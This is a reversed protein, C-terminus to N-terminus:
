EGMAIARLVPYLPDKEAKYGTSHEVFLVYKHESCGKCNVCHQNPDFGCKCLYVSEGAEKLTEYTALIYDCHGFNLGIGPIVSKVINCNPIDNFANEAIPNKTYTWFLTDPCAKVIEQWGELYKTDNNSDSFDGSAHIRCLKVKDAHVQAIIAKVMFETYDRAIITNFANSDIVVSGNYRGSKAYCGPCDCKCTGKVEVEKGNVTATFTGTGPLTSWTYVNTGVKSNGNKLLPAHYGLPTLIKESSGEKIMEIGNERYLDKKTARAM